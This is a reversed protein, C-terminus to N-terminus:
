KVHWLGKFQSKYNAPTLFQTGTKPVNQPTLIQTPYQQLNREKGLPQNNWNRLLVDAVYWGQMQTVQAAWMQEKGARLAALNAAVSGEGTIAVDNYGAGDLASRVGTSLGGFSLAVYKIKPDKQIASIITQPVKTGIDAAQVNIVQVKCTPCGSKVVTTLANQWPALVPYQPVQVILVHAGKAHSKWLIYNGNERGMLGTTVGNSNLSTILGNGSMGTALDMTSINVVPIGKSKAQDAYTKWVALPIGSIVIADPDLGLGQQFAKGVDEPTFGMTVDQSTWGLVSAADKVGNYIEQCEPVGCKLQVIKKGKVPQGKLPTTILISTPKKIYKAVFAKAKAYGPGDAAAQDRQGTRGSASGLVVFAVTLVLIAAFGRLRTTKRM